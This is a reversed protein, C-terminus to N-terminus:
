FHLIFIGKMVTNTHLQSPNHTQKICISSEDYQPVCLPDFSLEIYNDSEETPEDM